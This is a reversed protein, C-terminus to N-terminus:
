PCEPQLGDIDECMEALKELTIISGRMHQDDPMAKIYKAWHRLMKAISDLSNREILTEMYADYDADEGYKREKKGWEEGFATEAEEILLGLAFVLKTDASGSNPPPESIQALQPVPKKVPQAAKKLVAFFEARTAGPEYDELKTAPMVLAHEKRRLGEIRERNRKAAELDTLPEM